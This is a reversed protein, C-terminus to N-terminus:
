SKCENLKELYANELEKVPKTIYVINHIPLLANYFTESYEIWPKISVKLEDGDSTEPDTGEEFLYVTPIKEIKVPYNLIIYNNETSIIESVITEGTSLYFLKIEKEEEM